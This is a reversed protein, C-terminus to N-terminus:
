YGLRDSGSSLWPNVDSATLGKRAGTTIGRRGAGGDRPTSSGQIEEMQLLTLSPSKIRCWALGEDAKSGPVLAQPTFLPPQVWRQKALVESKTHAQGSSGSPRGQERPSNSQHAGRCCCLGQLPLPDAAKEMQSLSDRLPDKLRTVLLLSSSTQFPVSHTQKAEPVFTHVCSHQTKRADRPSKELQPTSAEQQPVHAEPEPACPKTNGHM